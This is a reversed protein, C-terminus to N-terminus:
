KGEDASAESWMRMIELMGEYTLGPEDFLEPCYQQFIEYLSDDSQDRQVKRVTAFPLCKFLPLSYTNGSPMTFNWQRAPEFNVVQPMTKAKAM